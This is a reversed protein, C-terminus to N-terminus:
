HRRPEDVVISVLRRLIPESRSESRALLDVLVEEVPAVVVAVALDVLVVAREALLHERQTIHSLVCRLRDVGREVLLVHRESELASLAGPGVRDGSELVEVDDLVLDEVARAVVRSLMNTPQRTSMSAPGASIEFKKLSSKSTGFKGCPSKVIRTPASLPVRTSGSRRWCGCSLSSFERNPGFPASEARHGRTLMRTLPKESISSLPSSPRVEPM